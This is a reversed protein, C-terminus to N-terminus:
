HSILLQRDFVCFCTIFCLLQAYLLFSNNILLNAIVLIQHKVKIVNIKNIKYKAKIACIITDWFCSM